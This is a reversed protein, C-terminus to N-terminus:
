ANLSKYLENENGLLFCPINTENEYFTKRYDLEEKGLITTNAGQIAWELERHLPFMSLALVKTQIYSELYAITRKIYIIDDFPNICLIIADPETGILLEHQSIPYLGINGTNFPVSHSQSGVFIIDEGKIDINHMLCNVMTIADTGSIEVSSEYGMPYVEDLGFLLSSPETGLGGVQYGLNMFYLRLALQLSFKGQKPSTGFVGVVPVSIGYLKGMLNEAVDAKTIKPFYVFCGQKRLEDIKETYTTLSDFAFLHKKYLICKEIFEGIIDRDTTSSILGVHGLIVTDFDSDWQIDKESRIMMHPTQTIGLLEDVRAGVKRFHIPEYIGKIKFSLLESNRFLSHIEKNFPYVIAKEILFDKRSNSSKSSNYVVNKWANKKLETLVNSLGTINSEKIKAVLATIYPAAFSSGAVLKYEDNVWPLKQLSGVGLINIPSNEVYIYKMGNPCKEYWDVGIVCDFAAPYSISGENDFASVIITGAEVLKKCIAYLNKLDDCQVVGGSLHIVDFKRIKFLENLAFILEETTVNMDKKFLMYDYFIASPVFRHIISAVATGHGIKDQKNDKLHIIRADTLEKRTDNIGSDIIAIKIGKGKNNKWKM